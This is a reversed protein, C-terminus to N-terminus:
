LVYLSGTDIGQPPTIAVEGPAHQLGAAQEDQTLGAKLLTQQGHWSQALTAVRSDQAELELGCAPTAFPLSMLEGLFVCNMGMALYVGFTVTNLKTSCQEQEQNYM